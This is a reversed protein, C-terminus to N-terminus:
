VNVYVEVTVGRHPIFRAGIPVDRHAVTDKEQFCIREEEQVM